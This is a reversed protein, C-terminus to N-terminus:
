SNERELKLIQARLAEPLKAFEEACQKLKFQRVDEALGNPISSVTGCWCHRFGGFVTSFAAQQGTKGAMWEIHTPARLVKYGRKEAFWSIFAGPEHGIKNYTEKGGRPELNTIGTRTMYNEFTDEDFSRMEQFPGMRKWLDIAERLDPQIAREALWSQHAVVHYAKDSTKLMQGAGPCFIWEHHASQWEKVAEILERTYLSGAPHIFTGGGMPVEPGILDYKASAKVYEDFWGSRTPFSDTEMAFIHSGTAHKYCLDLGMAHSPFDRMGPVIQVGEGLETETITKISPHDISNNAVLIECPVPIGYQKLHWICAPLWRFSMYHSLIISVKTM